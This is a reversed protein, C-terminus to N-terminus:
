ESSAMRLGSSPWLTENRPPCTACSAWLPHTELSRRIKPFPLKNQSIHSLQHLPLFGASCLALKWPSSHPLPSLDKASPVGLDTPAAILGQSSAARHLSTKAKNEEWMLTFKTEVVQLLFLGQTQSGMSAAQESVEGAGAEQLTNPRRCGWFHPVVLARLSCLAPLKGCPVTRLGEKRVEM